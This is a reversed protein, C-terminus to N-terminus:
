TPSFILVLRPSGTDRNFAASLQGVDQLTTVGVPTKGLVKHEVTPGFAYVVMVVLAGVLLLNLARSASLRV